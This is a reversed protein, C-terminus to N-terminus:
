RVQPANAISAGAFLYIGLLHLLQRLVGLDVRRGHNIQLGLTLTALALEVFARFQAVKGFMQRALCHDVLVPVAVIASAQVGPTLQAGDPLVDRFHQLVFGAAKFDDAVYTGLVGTPLAFANALGASGFARDLSTHSSSTQQGMDQGAFVTVM